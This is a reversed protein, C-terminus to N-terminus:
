FMTCKDNPFYQNVVNYLAELHQNMEDFWIWFFIVTTLVMVLRTLHSVRLSLTASIHKGLNYYKSLLVFTIM